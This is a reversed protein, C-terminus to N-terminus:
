AFLRRFRIYNETDTVGIEEIRVISGFNEIKKSARERIKACRFREQVEILKLVKEDDKKVGTLKEIEKSLILNRGFSPKRDM